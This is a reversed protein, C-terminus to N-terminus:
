LSTSRRPNPMRTTAFLNSLEEGKEQAKQQLYCVYSDEEQSFHSETESLNFSLPETAFFNDCENSISTSKTKSDDGMLQLLPNISQAESTESIFYINNKNNHKTPIDEIINKLQQLESQIKTNDIGTQQSFLEKYKEKGSNSIQSYNIKDMLIDSKDMQCSSEQSINAMSTDTQDKSSKSELKVKPENKDEYNIQKHMNGPHIIEHIKGKM